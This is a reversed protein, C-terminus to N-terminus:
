SVVSSVEPPLSDVVFGDEDTIRAFWGGNDGDWILEISTAKM